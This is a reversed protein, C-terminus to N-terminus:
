SAKIESNLYAHPFSSADATLFPGKFSFLVESKEMLSYNTVQASKLTKSLGVLSTKNRM